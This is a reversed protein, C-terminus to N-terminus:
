KKKKQKVTGKKAGSDAARLYHNHIPLTLMHHKLAYRVNPFPLHSFSSIQSSLNPWEAARRAATLSASPFLQHSSPSLHQQINGNDNIIIWHVLVRQYIRNWTNLERNLRRKVWLPTVPMTSLNVVKNHQKDWLKWLDRHLIIYWYWTLQSVRTYNSNVFSPQVLRKNNERDCRHHQPDGM